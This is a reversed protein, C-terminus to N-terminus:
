FYALVTKEPCQIGIIPEFANIISNISQNRSLGLCDPRTKEKDPDYRRRYEKPTLRLKRPNEETVVSAAETTVSSIYVCIRRFYSGFVFL